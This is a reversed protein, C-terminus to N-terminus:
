FAWQPSFDNCLPGSKLIFRKQFGTLDETAGGASYIAIM